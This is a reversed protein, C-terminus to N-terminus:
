KGRSFVYTGWDGPKKSAKTAVECKAADGEVPPDSLLDPDNLDPADELMNVEMRLDGDVLELRVYCKSMDGPDHRDEHHWAKGCLKSGHQHMSFFDYESSLLGSGVAVNGDFTLDPHMKGLVPNAEYLQRIQTIQDDTAGAAKQAALTKEFNFEWKGAFPAMLASKRPPGLPGSGSNTDCGALLLSALILLAHLSHARM